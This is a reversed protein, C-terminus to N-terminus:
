RRMEVIKFTIKKDRFDDWSLPPNFTVMEGNYNGLRLTVNFGLNYYFQEMEGVKDTWWHYHFLKPM